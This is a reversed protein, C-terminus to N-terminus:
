FVIDADKAKATDEYFKLNTQRDKKNRIGAIILGVAIGSGIMLGAYVLGLVVNEYDM